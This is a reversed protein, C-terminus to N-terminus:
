RGGRMTLRVSGHEPLNPDSDVRAVELPGLALIGRDREGADGEGHRELRDVTVSEVGEASRAEAVLQSLRIGGGFTLKDPHFFGKGGGPLDRDSFRDALEARVQAQLYGPLVCVTLGVDVPVLTAALM